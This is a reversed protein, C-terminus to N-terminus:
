EVLDGKYGQEHHAKWSPLASVLASYIKCYLGYLEWTVCESVKHEDPYQIKMNFM